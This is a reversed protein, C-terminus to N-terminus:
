KGAFKPARKEFFARIGETCDESAFCKAQQQAEMELARELEVRQAGFLVRKVAGVALPPGAAIQRALTEATPMVEAAPVVYDVAGMRLAEKASIMQGTYFMWAARAEGVLRPLLYTGGFDPVLGVKTFNQGFMAEESAIRLDCGLAVNMGAGAAHGNVAAIVPKETTRLALILKSGAALLPELEAARGAERYAKIMALDGGSCFARGEGTLIMVRVAPNAAGREVGAALADGLETNLANLRDPRNMRLTLVGERVSELLVPAQATAAETVAWGKQGRPERAERRRM